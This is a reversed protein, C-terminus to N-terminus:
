HGLRPSALRKDRRLQTEKALAELGGKGALRTLAARTEEHDVWRLSRLGHERVEQKEDASIRAEIFRVLGADATPGFARGLTYLAQRRVETDASPHRLREDLPLKTDPSTALTELTQRTAADPFYSLMSIARVRQWTTRQHDRAAAILRERAGPYAAEFAERSEPVVDITDLLLEFGAAVIRERDQPGDPDDAFVPSAATTFALGVLYKAFTRKM